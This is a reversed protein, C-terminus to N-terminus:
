SMETKRYISLSTTGYQREKIRRFGRYEEPLLNKSFHQFIVLTGPGANEYKVVSDLLGAYLETGPSKKVYPPDMFIIDPHIDKSSFYRLGREAPMHLATFPQEGPLSAAFSSIFRFRGPDTECCFVKGAGRSLAEMSIQGSGGFMDAFVLGSLDGTLSFLAEKVKQTTIDANDFSRNDFPIGRGKFSGGSIHITGM